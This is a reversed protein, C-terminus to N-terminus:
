AKSWVLTDTEVKPILFFVKLTSKGASYDGVTTLNLYKSNALEVAGADLKTVSGAGNLTATTIAGSITVSNSTGDKDVATIAVSTGGAFDVSPSTLGWASIQAGEPLSYEDFFISAGTPLYDADLVIEVYREDADTTYEAVRAPVGEDAGFKVRLGDANTWIAM